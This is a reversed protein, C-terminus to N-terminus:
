NARRVAVIEDDVGLRAHLILRRRARPQQEMGEVPRQGIPIATVELLPRAIAKLLKAAISQEGGADALMCMRMLVPSIEPSTTPARNVPSIRRWCGRASIEPIPPARM